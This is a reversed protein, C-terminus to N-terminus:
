GVGRESSVAGCGNGRLVLVAPFERCVLRGNDSVLELRVNDPVLIRMVAYALRDSEYRIQSEEGGISLRLVDKEQRVGVHLLRRRQQMDRQQVSDILGAFQIALEDSHSKCLVVQGPATNRIFVSRLNIM